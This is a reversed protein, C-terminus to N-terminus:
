PIVALRESFDQVHELWAITQAWGIVEDPMVVTVHIKLTAVDSIKM